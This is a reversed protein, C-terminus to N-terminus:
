QLEVVLIQVRMPCCTASTQAKIQGLIAHKTQLNRQFNATLCIIGNQSLYLIVVPNKLIGLVRIDALAMTTFLVPVSTLIGIPVMLAVPLIVPPLILVARLTLAVPLTVLRLITAMALTCAPLRRMVPVIPAVPVMVPPLRATPLPNTDAPLMMDAPGILAAKVIEAAPLTIPALKSVKPPTDAVPFM